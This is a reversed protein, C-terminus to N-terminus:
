KCWARVGDTKKSFPIYDFVVTGSGQGDTKNRVSTEDLLVASLEVFTVPKGLLENSV